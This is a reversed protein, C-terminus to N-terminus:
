PLTKEFKPEHIELIYLFVICAHIYMYMRIYMYSFCHSDYLWCHIGYGSGTRVHM